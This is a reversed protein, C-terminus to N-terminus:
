ARRASYISKADNYGDSYGLSLGALVLDIYIDVLIRKPIKRIKTEAQMFGLFRCFSDKDGDFVSTIYKKGNGGKQIIASLNELVKDMSEKFCKHNEDAKNMSDSM